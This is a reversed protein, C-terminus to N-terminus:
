LNSKIKLWRKAKLLDQPTDIGFGSYTIPKVYIRYGNELARLQELKEANELPSIPYRVLRLLAEKRYVYLGIHKYHTVTKIQDRNFPISYRSFYLAQNEKGFVVKVVNPTKLDDFKEIKECLTSMHFRPQAMLAKVATDISQPNLFPEDGQINVVLDCKIKQAVEAIRDTGSPHNKRTMVVEAGFKKAAAFIRKDDTAIILQHITKAKKTKEWVWQIMPKDGLLALAKGPFRSSGYRAPIVGLVKM